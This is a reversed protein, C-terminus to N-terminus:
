LWIQGMLVDGAAGTEIFFAAVVGTTDSGTTVGFTAAAATLSTYRKSESCATFGGSGFDWGTIGASFGSGTDAAIGNAGTDDYGIAHILGPQASPTATGSTRTTGSTQPNSAQTDYGSTGGIEAIWLAPFGVSPSFSATVTTAGAGANDKRWHQVQPNGASGIPSGYSGNVNDAITVTTGPAVVTIVHISSGATINSTFAKALSAATASQSIQTEQLVSITM